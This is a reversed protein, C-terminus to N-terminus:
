AQMLPVVNAPVAPVAAAQQRAIIENALDLYALTGKSTANFLVAPKGYFAAEALHTNRPIITRLLYKRFRLQLERNTIETVKTNPEYMTQVIGEIQLTKNAAERIWDFHKMLKDIGELSFHGSRIPILVSDACTLANTTLGRLFPPTDIIVYDYHPSVSRLINKLLTRNESLRMIREEAVPTTINAPVFDLFALETRHIVQPMSHIFNFVEYLGGKIKEPTFGLSLSCAGFPDTDILLVRKELVAFSAALNVATTTKGVGGKSIAIAIVKTMM